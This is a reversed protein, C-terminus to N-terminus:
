RAIRQAPRANFAVREAFRAMDEDSITMPEAFVIWAVGETCPPTTLSGSYRYHVPSAPLFALPDFEEALPVHV